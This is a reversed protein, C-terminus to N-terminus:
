IKRGQRWERVFTEIVALSIGELQQHRTSLDEAVDMAPANLIFNLHKIRSQNNLADFIYERITM